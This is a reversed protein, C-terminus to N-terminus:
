KRLRGSALCRNPSSEQLVVSTVAIMLRSPATVTAPFCPHSLPCLPVFRHCTDSDRLIFATSLWSSRVLGLHLEIVAAIWLPYCYWTEDYSSFMAQWVFYIRIGGAINVALGLAFLIIVGARRKRPMALNIVIPIPLLTVCIECLFNAISGYM